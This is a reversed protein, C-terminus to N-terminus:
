ENSDENKKEQQKVSQAHMLLVGDIYKKTHFLGQFFGENFAMQLDFKKHKCQPHPEYARQLRESALVAMIQAFTKFEPQAFLKQMDNVWTKQWPTIEIAQKPEQRDKIRKLTKKYAAEKVVKMRDAYTSDSGQTEGKAEM